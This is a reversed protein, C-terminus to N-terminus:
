CGRGRHKDRKERKKGERKKLGLLSILCFAIFLARNVNIATPAREGKRGGGEKKKGGGFRDGWHLGFLFHACPLLPCREKREEQASFL